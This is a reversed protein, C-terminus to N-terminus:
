NICIFRIIAREDFERRNCQNILDKFISLLTKKKHNILSYTWNYFILQNIFHAICTMEDFAKNCIILDFHL